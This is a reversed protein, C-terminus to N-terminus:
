SGPELGLDASITRLSAGIPVGTADVLRNMMQFNGAVAAARVVAAPGGSALLESRAADLRTLDGRVLATTFAILGAGQDILPDAARDTIARLDVQEGSAHASARLM